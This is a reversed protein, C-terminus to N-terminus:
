LRESPASLPENIIPNTLVGIKEVEVSVVDGSRLYVPPKFSHGVGDPSGTLIVTGPPLTKSSSLFSILAAVNFIMDGTNGDQRLEGNVRTTVRLNDPDTLEDRTVLVPGLPCFTDFSKGQSFQGGGLTFQWDRASVDNACTYGLVYDLANERSVNKCTRGIVVALEGEYDVAHSALMQPVEIAAGPNQLANLSKIFILPHAETVRGLEDAHKQYNLGIGFINAPAVPALLTGVPIIQDTLIYNQFIDGVIMRATGDPLLAAYSPGASTLHRIIKM